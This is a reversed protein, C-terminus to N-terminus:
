HDANVMWPIGFKDTLMGFGSTWFTKEFPMDVKGGAALKDFVKRGEDATSAGISLSYGAPKQTPDCRGDSLLLHNDGFKLSAHMIKDEGGPPIMEKSPADKFRSIMQIEGGLADKYFNLAEECRGNLFVYPMLQM